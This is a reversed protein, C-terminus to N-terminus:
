IMSESSCLCDGKAFNLEKQTFAYPLSENDTFVDVHVSHFDHRLINLAFVAAALYLDHTMFSKEHVM